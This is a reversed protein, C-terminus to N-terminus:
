SLRDYGWLAVLDRDLYDSLAQVEPKFRRRLELMLREDPPTPKGFVVRRRVQWFVEKRLRRSPLALKAARKVARALSGQGQNAARVMDDLRGSRMRVTPNAHTIEIPATEEVDLFRLVKGLTAANNQRFDDYILVLVREDAFLAHFRRLQEAYRVRDTYLLMQPCRAMSSPLSRGARRADELALAKGLNAETEVRIQLLELHMSRVFSAPERLIAIIRADPQAEAILGAATHSWIYSTSAEGLLQDAHADAFLALYDEYTEAQADAQPRYRSPLDSAFFWPEKVAPMFIQPHQKLMEYLATTGSKPHGVIFFDPLRPAM